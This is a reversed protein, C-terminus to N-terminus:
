HANKFATSVREAYRFLSFYSVSDKSVKKKGTKAEPTKTPESSSMGNGEAVTVTVPAELSSM